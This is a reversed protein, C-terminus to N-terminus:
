WSSRLPLLARLRADRLYLGLWVLVGLGAQLFYPEGIRVHTAIAGGLYGTLLIAGLVATRPILYITTCGLELIGLGLALQDDWGLHAFGEVVPAPKVLKMVGSFVLMLVPLASAVRGAWLAAKSVPATPTDLEM